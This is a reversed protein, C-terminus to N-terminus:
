YWQKLVMHSYQAYTLNICNHKLERPTLYMLKFGANNTLIKVSLCATMKLREKLLNNSIYSGLYKLETVEDIIEGGMRLLRIDKKYKSQSFKCHGNVSMFNTKDPNFKIERLVGLQETM